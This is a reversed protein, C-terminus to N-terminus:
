TYLQQHMDVLMDCRIQVTGPGPLKVVMLYPGDALKTHKDRTVLVENGDPNM